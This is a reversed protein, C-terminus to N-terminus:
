PWPRPWGSAVFLSLGLDIACPARPARISSIIYSRPAWCPSASQSIGRRWFSRIQSPNRRAELCRFTIRESWLILDLLDLHLFGSPPKLYFRELLGIVVYMSESEKLNSWIESKILCKYNRGIIRSFSISQFHCSISCKVAKLCHCKLPPPGQPFSPPLIYIYQPNM